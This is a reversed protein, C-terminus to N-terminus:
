ASTCGTECKLRESARTVYRLVIVIGSVSPRMDVAPSVAFQSLGFGNQRTVRKWELEALRANKATEKLVAERILEIM